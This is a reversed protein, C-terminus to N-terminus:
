PPIILLCESCDQVSHLGNSRVLLYTFFISLKMEFNNWFVTCNSFSFFITRFCYAWTSPQHRHQIRNAMQRFHFLRRTVVRVFGRLLSFKRLVLLGDLFLQYLFYSSNTVRRHWRSVGPDFGAVFVIRTWTVRRYSCVELSGITQSFLYESFQFVLIYFIWIFKTGFHETKSFPLSFSLSFFLSFFSLFFLCFSFKEPFM